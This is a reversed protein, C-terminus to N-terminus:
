TRKLDRQSPLKQRCNQVAVIFVQNTSDDFDYIVRYRRKVIIQRFRQLKRFRSGLAAEMLPFKALLDVRRVIEFAPGQPLTEIASFATSTWIIETM